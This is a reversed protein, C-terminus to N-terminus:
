VEDWCATLYVDCGQLGTDLNTVTVRFGDFGATLSYAVTFFDKSSPHWFRDNGPGTFFVAKTASPIGDQVTKLEVKLPASSSPLLGILKGTKDTGIQASNLDVSAGPVLGVSSSLSSQPSTYTQTIPLPNTKAVDGDSVGDIGQVLKIRQYHIAGIEDTATQAGLGVPQGLQLNDPM